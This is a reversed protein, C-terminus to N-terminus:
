DAMLKTIRQSLGYTLLGRLPGRRCKAGVNKDMMGFGDQPKGAAELLTLWWSAITHHGAHGKHPYQLYHGASKLRTVRATRSSM